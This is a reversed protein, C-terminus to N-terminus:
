ASPTPASLNSLWETGDNIKGLIETLGELPVQSYTMWGFGKGAGGALAANTLAASGSVSSGAGLISSATLGTAAKASIAGGAGKLAALTTPAALGASGITLAAATFISATIGGWKAITLAKKGWTNVAGTATDVASDTM